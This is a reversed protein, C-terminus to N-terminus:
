RYSALFLHMKGDRGVEYCHALSSPQTEMAKVFLVTVLQRYYAHQLLPDQNVPVFTAMSYIMGGAIDDMPTAMVAVPTGQRIFAMPYWEGVSGKHTARDHEIMQVLNTRIEVVKERDTIKRRRLFTVLDGEKDLITGPLKIFAVGNLDMTPIDNFAGVTRHFKEALLDDQYSPMRNGTLQMLAADMLTGMDRKNGEQEQQQQQEAM